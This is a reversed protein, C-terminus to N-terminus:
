LTHKSDLYYVTRVAKQTHGQKKADDIDDTDFQCIALQNRILQASEKIEIADLPKSLLAKELCSIIVSQISCQRMNAVLKLQEYLSEPLDKITVSAM